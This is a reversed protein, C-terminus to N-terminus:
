LQWGFLYTNPPLFPFLLCLLICLCWQVKERGAASVAVHEARKDDLSRQTTAHAATAQEMASSRQANIARLQSVQEREAALAAQAEELAARLRAIEGQGALLDAQTGRLQDRLAVVAAEASTARTSFEQLRASMASVTEDLGAILTEHERRVESDHQDRSQIARTADALSAELAAVTAAHQSRASALGQEAVAIQLRLTGNDSDVQRKAARLRALQEEGQQCREELATCQTSLRINDASARTADAARADLDTQLSRRLEESEAERAAAAQLATRQESRCLQLLKEKEELLAQLQAVAAGSARPTAPAPSPMSGRATKLEALLADRESALEQLESRLALSPSSM